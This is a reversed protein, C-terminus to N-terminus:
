DIVGMIGLIENPHSILYVSKIKELKSIIEVYYPVPKVMIEVDFKIANYPCATLCQYCRNCKSPNVVIKYYPHESLAGVPCTKAASCTTCENCMNRDIVMPVISKSEFADVPLIYLPTNTKISHMALTSVLTDAIGHVIKGVTNLTSPSVVVLSYVNFYLRGTTPYGPPERSEYVIGTPYPGILAEELKNKLRYMELITEGARSVFVTVRYGKEILKEIVNISEHIFAGAGTICWAISKTM